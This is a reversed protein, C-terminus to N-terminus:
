VPPGHWGMGLHQVSRGNNSGSQAEGTNGPLPCVWSKTWVGAQLWTHGTGLVRGQWLSLRTQLLLSSLTLAPPM